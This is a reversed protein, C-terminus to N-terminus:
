DYYFEGNPRLRSAGTGLHEVRDASDVTVGVEGLWQITRLPLPQPQKWFYFGVEAAIAFLWAALVSGLVVVRARAM